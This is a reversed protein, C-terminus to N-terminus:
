CIFQVSFYNFIFSNLAWICTGSNLPKCIIKPSYSDSQVNGFNIVFHIAARGVSPKTYDFLHPFLAKVLLTINCTFITNSGNPKMATFLDLCHKFISFGHPPRNCFQNQRSPNHCYLVNYTFRLDSQKNEVTNWKLLTQPPVRGTSVCKPKRIFEVFILCCYQLITLLM